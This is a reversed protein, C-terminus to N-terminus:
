VAAEAYYVIIIILKFSTYCYNSRELYAASQLRYEVSDWHNSRRTRAELAIVQTWYMRSPKCITDLNLTMFIVCLIIHDLELELETITLGSERIV